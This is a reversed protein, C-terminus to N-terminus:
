LAAGVEMVVSHVMVLVTTIVTVVISRTTGMMTVLTVTMITRENDKSNTSGGLPKISENTAKNPPM